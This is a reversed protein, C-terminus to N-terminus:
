RKPNKKLACTVCQSAVPFAKLRGPEINGKCSECVGYKGKEIKKIAEKTEKIINKINKQLGLNEQIKEVEQANEDDSTGYEPFKRTLNYQEELYKLQKILINKQKLVFIQNTIKKFVM